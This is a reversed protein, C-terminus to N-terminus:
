VEQGWGKVKMDEAHGARVEVCPVCPAFGCICCPSSFRKREVRTAVWWVRLM